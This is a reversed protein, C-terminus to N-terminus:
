NENIPRMEEDEGTLFLGIDQHVPQRPKTRIKQFASESQPHGLVHHSGPPGGHPDRLKEDEDTTNAAAGVVWAKLNLKRKYSGLDTKRCQLPAPHSFEGMGGVQFLM